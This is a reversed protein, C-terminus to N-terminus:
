YVYLSTNGTDIVFVYNDPKIHSIHGLMKLTGDANVQYFNYPYDLYFLRGDERDVFNNVDESSALIRADEGNIKINGDESSTLKQFIYM